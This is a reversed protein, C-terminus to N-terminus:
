KCTEEVWKQTAVTEGNWLLSNTTLYIKNDYLSIKNDVAQNLQLTQFGTLYAVSADSVGLSGGEGSIKTTYTSFLIASTVIASVIASLLITTLTSKM